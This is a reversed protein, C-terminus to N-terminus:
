TPIEVLVGPSKRRAGDSDGQKTPITTTIYDSDVEVVFGCRWGSTSGLSCVHDGPRAVGVANPRVTSGTAAQAVQSDLSFMGWDPAKANVFHADATLQPGSSASITGVVRGSAAVQQGVHGCHGAFLGVLSGDPHEGIFGVTCKGGDMVGGRMRSVTLVTSGATVTVTDPTATSTGAKATPPESPSPSSCGAGLAAIAVTVTAALCRRIM